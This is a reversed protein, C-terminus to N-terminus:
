INSRRIKIKTIEMASLRGIDGSISLDKDEDGQAFLSLIDNTDTKAIVIVIDCGKSCLEFEGLLNYTDKCKGSEVKGVVNNDGEFIELM